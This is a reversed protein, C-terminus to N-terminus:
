FAHHTIASQIETFAYVPDEAQWIAGLSAVGDFGFDRCRPANAATVGGLAIVETRRQALTRRRLLAYLSQLDMATAPGYGNKSISSFVPGVLVADYHGLARRVAEVGHCARSTFGRKEDHKEFPAASAAPADLLATGDDRWHRGGLGLEDVLAHHQHLVLHPRWRTPLQEIWKRLREHSWGPKRLHYRELGAALMAMLAPIERPDENEPSIVILKM